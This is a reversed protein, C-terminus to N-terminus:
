PQGKTSLADIAAIVKDLRWDRADIKGCAEVARKADAIGRAFGREFGHEHVARLGKTKAASAMGRHADRVGDYLRTLAEDSWQSPRKRTTTM